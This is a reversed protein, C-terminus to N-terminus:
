CTRIGDGFATTLAGRLLTPTTGEGIPVIDRDPTGPTMAVCGPAGSAESLTTTELPDCVISTADPRRAASGREPEARGGGGDEGSEGVSLISASSLRHEIAPPVPPATISDGTSRGRGLEEQSMELVGDDDDVDAEGADADGVPMLAADVEGAGADGVPLLAAAAEGADADGVGADGAEEVVPREADAEQDQEAPDEVPDGRAEVPVGAGRPVDDVALPDGAEPADWPGDGEDWRFDDINRPVHPVICPMVEAESIGCSLGLLDGITNISLTEHTCLLKDFGVAGHEEAEGLGAKAAFFDAASSPIRGDAM